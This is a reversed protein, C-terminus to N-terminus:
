GEKSLRTRKQYCKKQAILYLEQLYITLDSSLHEDAMMKILPEDKNDLQQVRDLRCKNSSTTAGASSFINNVEV